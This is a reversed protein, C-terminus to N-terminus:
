HRFKKGNLIYIGPRLLRWSGDEVQQRTAVKRGMMDYICGDGQFSTGESPNQEEEGPQEEDELDDGFVVPVFEIGRMERSDGGSARYYIKNHLVYRNNRTWEATSLGNEKYPNANKYFGVGTEAKKPLTGTINGSSPDMTLESTFPLGFTYVIDTGTLKQELYEGTFIINHNTEIDTTTEISPASTPITMKVVGANDTTAILVPTGAPIFKYSNCYASPCRNAETNYYSMMKPHLYPDGPWPSNTNDCTYAKYVKSGDDNPLLVDFPACFSSYYYTTGYVESDGGSNVALTLGQNNAPEICWKAHDTPVDHSFKLDYIDAANTQDFNLYKRINATANDHILFVAGGIDMLYFDTADGTGMKNEIVNLGQTSMNADYASTSINPDRTGTIYFISAPDYEPASIPLAGRTAPSTTYGSGLIEFTTNVGKREYFHLPIGGSVYTKEIEHTYGSMYRSTVGPIDPQSHLRYYGSAFDVINSDNYVVAQKDMLTAAEEYREKGSKLPNGHVDTEYKPTTTLGGIYGARDYYPKLQKESLGFTLETAVEDLELYYHTIGGGDIGVGRKLYLQTGTYNCVPHVRFYGVNNNESALLEYVDYANPAQIDFRDGASPEDATTMVDDPQNSTKYIYRNYMKFGYPDGVPSWLFDNTYHSERNEKMELGWSKTFQALWPTKDIETEFSYWKTEAPSLVFNSGANTDLGDDFLYVINIYVDKGLLGEEKGMHDVRLGKFQANMDTDDEYTGPTASEKQINDVYFHYVCNPRYFAEPVKLSDGLSIQGANWGYRISSGDHWTITMGLQYNDTTLDRQTSGPIRLTKNHSPSFGDDWTGDEKKKSFPIDQTENINNIILRYIVRHTALAFIIFQTPHTEDSAELKQGYGSLMKTGGTVQLVGYDYGEKNLLMFTTANESSLTCNNDSSNYVCADHVKSVIKIAYPDDGDLKWEHRSDVQIASSGDDQIATGEANSGMMNDNYWIINYLLDGNIDIPTSNSDGAVAVHGTGTANRKNPVYYSSTSPNYATYRVYVEDDYLGYLNTLEKLKRAEEDDIDMDSENEYYLYQDMTLLPSKISEPLKPVFENDLATEYDQDAQIALVKGNTYVKYTYTFTVEDTLLIQSDTGHFTCSTSTFGSPNDGDKDEAIVAATSADMNAGNLFQYSHTGLGAEALAYSNLATHSLLAFRKGTPLENDKNSRNFLQVNYPDPDTQPTKLFKWQWAKNAATTGDIPDPKEGSAEKIDSDYITNKANLTMTLWKGKLIGHGDAEEDYTYRVYVTNTNETLGAAALSGTIERNSIDKKNAVDSYIGDSSTTTRANYIVQKYTYTSSGIKFYYTGSTTLNNIMTMMAEDDTAEKKFVGTADDWEKETSEVPTSHSASGSYYKFDTALPSKFHNPTQPVLDGGSRYRLSEHGKNDVIIYDYLLPRYLETYTQDIQPDSTAVLTSFNKVRQTHDFRPMLQMNGEADKVAMFTLNTIDLARSDYWTCTVGTAREGLTVTPDSSYTGILAGDDLIAGTANTKFHKTNYPVSTIQINYPDFAWSNFGTEKVKAKDRYDNVWTISSIVAPDQYGMEDDININPVVYWLEKNKLGDITLDTYHDIIYKQMGGSATNTTVSTAEEGAISAFYAGQQILFPQGTGTVSAIKTYDKDDADKAAEYTYSVSYSKTYEDKVTYTVYQDYLNGKDDKVNKADYPPLNTLSTSKYVEGGVSVQQSLNYYQHFGTRKSAKTWFYYAEVMPSDYPRIADYKAAKAEDTPSSPLPKRMIEWGHQDLLILAPDIDIPILDFYGAGMNVTQFWHELEEWGKKTAGDKNYGNFRKAYAWKSYSHFGYQGEGTGTLRERYSAPTTPVLISGDKNAGKDKDELINELLKNKVTDYTKWYQEFSTLTRRVTGDGDEVDVVNDHDVDLKVAQTTVLRYQGTSGLIMYETGQLGSIDPWVLGTVIQSYDDPQYTRFYARIDEGNYTETQRSCIKVHYPDANASELFWAWRTRTSAAGEQQLDYEAQGYVFFNCDGNCYPYIAPVPSDTLDDHGDEQRFSAGNKFQLLFMTRKNRLDIATCEDYTVYVDTNDGIETLETQSERLTFIGGAVDFNSYIWYHFGDEPVLPSKIANPLKPANENTHRATATLLDRKESDILHYTVTKSGETPTFLFHLEGNGYEFKTQSYLKVEDTERGINYYTSKADDDDGTALMCEYSTSINSKAIFLSANAETVFSITQENGKTVKVYGNAQVNFIKMAYPDSGELRWKYANDEKHTEIDDATSKVKSSPSSSDYYIFQDYLNVFFTQTKDLKTTNAALAATMGDYRVWIEQSDSTADDPAYPIDTGATNAQAKSETDYFKLTVGTLALFPSCIASPIHALDLKTSADQSISAKAAISHDSRMIHYVYTKKPVPIVNLRTAAAETTVGKLPYNGTGYDWGLHNTSNNTSTFERLRFCSVYDGKNDDYVVDWATGTADQTINGTVPDNLKLYRLTGSNDDTVQRSVIKLEFPDGVFAFHSTRAYRSGDDGKTNFAEDTSNYRVIYQDEKNTYFNYWTLDDYTPSATTCTTFPLTSEYKLWIIKRGDEDTSATGDADVAAFSTYETTLTAEKYAGTFNVYKRKLADPVHDKPNDNQYYESIRVVQSLETKSIPTKVKFVYEKVQYIKQDTSYSKSVNALTLSQYTLNNYSGDRTLYNYSATKYHGPTALDGESNVFRSVMFVYGTEDSNNLLAFTNYTLESTGKSKFYGTQTEDPAPDLSHVEDPNYSNNSDNYKKYEKHDDSAMFFGSKDNPQFLHSGKYWKYYRHGESGHKEIYTYDKNYATGIIINYPDSGEFKFIFHFQGAVAEKTNKNDGSQWYTGINTKPIKNENTYAFQVFDESVLAEENVLNLTKLFVAMRNNRGRNFALFGNGMTINYEATGDLKAITNDADYQYTVYVEMDDTVDDNWSLSDAESTITYYYSKNKNGAYKYMAVATASKTVNSSNLYLRFEKALPSIYDKPLALKTANNDVVRIAELRKGIIVGESGTMHYPNEVIPLTLIHYTVKHAWVENATGGALM